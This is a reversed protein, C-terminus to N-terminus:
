INAFNEANFGFPGYRLKSFVFFSKTKHEGVGYLLRMFNALKM